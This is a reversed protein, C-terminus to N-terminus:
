YAITNVSYSCTNINIDIDRKLKLPFTVLVWYAPSHSHWPPLRCTEPIRMREVLLLRTWNLTAEGPWFNGILLSDKMEFVLM